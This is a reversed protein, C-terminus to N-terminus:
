PSTGGGTDEEPAGPAAGADDPAASAGPDSGAPTAGPDSAGPATPDGPDTAGPAGPDAAGSAAPDTAGPAAPDTAGPTGPAANPDVLPEEPPLNRVPPGYKGCGALGLAGSALLGLALLLSIALHRM